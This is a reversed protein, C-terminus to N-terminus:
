YKVEQQESSGATKTFFSLSWQTSGPLDMIRSLLYVPLRGIETVQFFFPIVNDGDSFQLMVVVSFDHM